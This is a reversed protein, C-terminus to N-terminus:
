RLGALGDAAVVGKGADLVFLPNIEAEAIREVLRAAMVSFAAIADALAEVDAKPRGRYGDLLAWSKLERIM